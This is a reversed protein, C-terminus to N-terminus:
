ADKEFWGVGHLLRRLEVLSLLVGAEDHAEITMVLKERTTCDLLLRFLLEFDVTGKSLALHEDYNGHNDHLHLELLRGEIASIWEGLECKGFVSFHGIDFCYGFVDPDLDEVVGCLPGPGEDLTNELAIRVGKESADCGVEALLSRSNSQWQECLGAYRFGDYGGHLVLLRARLRSAAAIAQAIRKATVARVERDFAGINLDMYPGHITCEVGVRDMSARVADLESVELEDLDQAALYLEMNLRERLAIPLYEGRQAFPIHVFANARRNEATGGTNYSSAATM